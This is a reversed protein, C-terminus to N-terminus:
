ISPCHDGCNSGAPFPGRRKYCWSDPISGEKELIIFLEDHHLSFTTTITTSTADITKYFVTTELNTDFRPGCSAGNWGELLLSNTIGFPKPGTCDSCRYLIIAYSCYRGECCTMEIDTGAPVPRPLSYANMTALESPFNYYRTHGLNVEDNAIPIRISQFTESRPLTVRVGSGGGVCSTHYAVDVHGTVTVVNSTTGSLSPDLGTSVCKVTYSNGKTFEEDNSDRTISVFENIAIFHGASTSPISVLDNFEFSPYAACIVPLPFVAGPSINVIKPSLAISNIGLVIGTIQIITSFVM